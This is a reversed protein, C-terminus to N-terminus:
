WGLVKESLKESKSCVLVVIIPPLIYGLIILFARVMNSGSDRGRSRLFSWNNYCYVACGMMVTGVFPIISLLLFRWFRKFTKAMLGRREGDSLGEVWEELTIKDEMKKGGYLLNNISM